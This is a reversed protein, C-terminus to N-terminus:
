KGCRYRQSRVACRCRRCTYLHHDNCKGTFQLFLNKSVTRWQWGLVSQCLVPNPYVGIEKSPDSTAKTGSITSVTTMASELSPIGNSADGQDYVSVGYLYQWGNLQTVGSGAPPFQYFYKSTDGPFVVGSFAGSADHTITTNLALHSTDIRVKDFGTNYGITDDTRDFDGVLPINLIWNANNLFDSGAKSRYVRYGEFDYVGSIPDRSYEATKDWYITASQNGVEAHVHPQSPPIPLVYRTLIGDPGTALGGPVRHVVDERDLMDNGNVDEGDYCRQAWKRGANLYARQTTDDKSESLAKNANDACIVALVIQVSDGPLLTKWPGVSLLTTYNGPHQHVYTIMDQSLSQSLRTYRSNYAANADYDQSPSWLDQMPSSSSSYFWANYFTQKHLDNELNIGDPFPTTGLLSVGIYSYAQPTGSAFPGAEYTYMMRGISDYGEGCQAYYSSGVAPRVYNTNRVVNDSWLGVYFNDITDTTINKITYSIIVFDNAYPFNWAYSEQHVTVGLPHHNVISDGIAGATPVRTYRDTYDAVFDQHSIADISFTSASSLTSREIMTSGIDTTFEYNTLPSTSVRDCSATTVRIPDEQVNRPQGGIWLGSQYMHEILSGAPYVCSPQTPWSSNRTGLTGYNTITLQIQGVSTYFTGTADEVKHLQQADGREVNLAAALSFVIIGIWYRQQKM